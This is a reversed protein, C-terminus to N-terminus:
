EASTVLSVPPTRTVVTATAGSTVAVVAVSGIAVVILLAWPVHVVTVGIAEHVAGAIGVLGAAAVVCGLVLGIAAVGVAEIVAAGVVQRRTLGTVRAVAFERRREAGAVVVSNVVAMLAYLGALGMLVTLVRVNGDQATEARAVAWDPVTQVRSFGAKGIREAVDDPHQGPAVQVVTETPARAWVREPLIRRPVLFSDGTELTEPMGGAVTLELSHGDAEAQLVQGTEIREAHLAPGTFVATGTLAALDGSAPPLTHTRAYDAADVAIIGSYFSRTIVRGNRTKRTTITIDVANQRSAVAVGEIGPLREAEAGTSTVVLHANVSRKAEEGGAASLSGFTGALGLLLAVLVILPSATAASRRVGDRLNARALGTLTGGPVLIGVAQALVPVALPSLLSMAVAGFMSIGLAAMMAGILNADQAWLVMALTCAAFSLGLFWRSFTMVGVAKGTERLAELPLIRAARLSATFVGTLAVGVGAVGAVVVAWLRWPASFGDPLLGIEVLLWTQAHKAVVGFPVGLVSGIVGLLLSESLLLARLQTRSGGTLRLLALDRRRQAVTFGFTSSVIFVALFLALFATMGMVTAAAVFGERIKDEAQRSTGPPIRPEGTAVLVLMAAQVLAVGVAVSLVAGAFLEWRERFTGFSM